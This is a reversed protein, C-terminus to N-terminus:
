FVYVFMAEFRHEDLVEDTRDLDEEYYTYSLSRSIKRTLQRTHSLKLDRRWSKETPGDRPKDISRSLGLTLNLDNILLDQLNFAYRWNTSDTDGTSGFTDRPERVMTLSHDARPGLKHFLRADYRFAVENELPEERYTYEAGLRLNMTRSIDYDDTIRLRHVPQWDGEGDEEVKEYALSYRLDPDTLMRWEVGASQTEDWDSFSGPKNVLETKDKGFRYFFSYQPHAKWVADFGVNYKNQDGEKFEDEDYRDQRYGYTASASLRTWDYRLGVDYGSVTNIVRQKRSGSIFVGEQRQATKNYVGSLLVDFRGIETEYKVNLDGFPESENDLDKRRGHREWSLSSGVSLKSQPDLDGEGALQLSYVAFYDEQELDTESDRLGEVNTTHVLKVAASLTFDVSGLKFSNARSEGM